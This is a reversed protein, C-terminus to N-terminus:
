TIDNIDKKHFFLKCFFLKDHMIYEEGRASIEKSLKSYFFKVHFLKFSPMSNQPPPRLHALLPVPEYGENIDNGGASADNDEATIADEERLVQEGGEGGVTQRNGVPQGKGATAGRGRPLVRWGRPAGEGEAGMQNLLQVPSGPSFGRSLLRRHNPTPTTTTTWPSRALLLSSVPM